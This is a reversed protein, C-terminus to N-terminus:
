NEFAGTLYFGAWHWPNPYEKMVQLQAQQLAKAPGAQPLQQYFYKMLKYTSEDSVNWLSALVAGAGAYLFARNLGIVENGGSVRGIGSQCASLVVVRPNMTLSFVEWGRLEGDNRADRALLLASDLPQKENYRGHAALHLVAVGDLKATKLATETAQKGTFVVPQAFAASMEKVEQEAFPLAGDGAEREPNGLAVCKQIDPAVNRDIFFLSAANPLTTLVYDQLLPHSTGTTLSGFPLYHLSESPVIVLQTIGTLNGQIPNWLATALEKSIGAVLESQKSAVAERYDAVLKALEKRGIKSEVVSVKGQSLVFILLRSDDVFYSILGTTKGLRELIPRTPIITVARTSAYDPSQQRLADQVQAQEKLLERYRQVMPDNGGGPSEKLGRGLRDLETQIKEQRAVLAADVSKKLRLPRGALMEVFSRAKSRELHEFAEDAEGLEHLVRILAAYVEQVSGSFVQKLADDSFRARTSELSDVAQKLYTRAEKYRKQGAFIKGIAYNMRWVIQVAGSQEATQLFKEMEEQLAPTIELKPNRTLMEYRLARNVLLGFHRKGEQFAKEGADFFARAKPADGKRGWVAGQTTKAFGIGEYMSNDVNFYQGYKKKSEVLAECIDDARKLYQLAKDDQGEFYAYLGLDNSAHILAKSKRVSEAIEKREPVRDYHTPYTYDKLTTVAKLYHNAAKERDGSFLYVDGLDADLEVADGHLRVGIPYAKKLLELAKEYEGIERLMYATREMCLLAGEEDNRSEYEKQAQAWAELGKQYEGRSALEEARAAPGNWDTNYPLNPAPLPHALLGLFLFGALQMGRVFM